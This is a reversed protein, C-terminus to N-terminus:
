INKLKNAINNLNALNQQSNIQNFTDSPRNGILYYTNRNNFDYFDFFDYGYDWNINELEEQIQKLEEKEYYHKNLIDFKVDGDVIEMELEVDDLWENINLNGCYIQIKNVKNGSQDEFHKFKLKEKGM